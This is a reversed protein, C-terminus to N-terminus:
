RWAPDPPTSEAHAEFCGARVDNIVWSAPVVHSRHRGPFCGPDQLDKCIYGIWPQTCPCITLSFGATVSCTHKALYSLWAKCFMFRGGEGTAGASMSGKTGKYLVPLDLAVAM